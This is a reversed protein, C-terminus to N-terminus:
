TETRKRPRESLWRSMQGPEVLHEAGVLKTRPVPWIVNRERNIPASDPGQEDAIREEPVDM